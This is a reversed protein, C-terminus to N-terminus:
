EFLINSSMILKENPVVPNARFVSHPTNLAFALAGELEKCIFVKAWGNKM